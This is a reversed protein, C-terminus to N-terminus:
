YNRIEAKTWARPYARLTRDKIDNYLCTAYMGDVNQLFLEMGKPYIPEGPPGQSDELLKIRTGNPIEYLKM